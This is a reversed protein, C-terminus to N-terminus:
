SMKGEFGSLSKESSLGEVEIARKVRKNVRPVTAGQKM